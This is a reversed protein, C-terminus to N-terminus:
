KRPHWHICAWPHMRSHVASSSSADGVEKTSMPIGIDCACDVNCLHAPNRTRSSAERWLASAQQPADMAMGSAGGAEAMDVEVREKQAHLAKAHVLQRCLDLDQFRISQGSREIVARALM